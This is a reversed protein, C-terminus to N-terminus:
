GGADLGNVADATLKLGTVTAVRAITCNFSPPNAAATTPNLIGDLPDQSTKMKHHPAIQYDVCPELPSFPISVPKFM